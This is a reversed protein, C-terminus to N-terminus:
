VFHKDAIHEFECKWKLRNINNKLQNNKKKLYYFIIFCCLWYNYKYM